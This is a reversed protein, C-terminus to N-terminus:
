DDVNFYRPYSVKTPYKLWEPYKTKADSPVSLTKVKKVEKFLVRKQVFPDFDMTELKDGLRNRRAQKKFESVTSQIQVLTIDSKPKSAVMTTSFQRTHQLCRFM